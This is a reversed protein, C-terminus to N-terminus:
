ISNLKNKVPNNKNLNNVYKVVDERKIDWVGRARTMKKTARLKRSVIMRQITLPSLRIWHAVEKITM